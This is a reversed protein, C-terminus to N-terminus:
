HQGGIIALDAEVQEPAHAPPDAECIHWYQPGCAHRSPPPSSVPSDIIPYKREPLPANRNSLENLLETREARKEDARGARIEKAADLVEKKSGSTVALAAVVDIPEGNSSDDGNNDNPKKNRREGNPSKDRRVQSEGVGVIEGIAVNDHEYVSGSFRMVIEDSPLALGSAVDFLGARRGLLIALTAQGDKDRGSSAM